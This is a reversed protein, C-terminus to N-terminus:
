DHHQRLMEAYSLLYPAVGKADNAVVPESLYYAASGDRQEKGGLGAVLCIGELQLRGDQESLYRHGIGTYAHVGAQRYSEPLIGLRLAKLICYSLIASGSTELYNGALAPLNVVQYWLGSQTDQYGLLADILGRFHSALRSDRGRCRGPDAVELVDVMAMAFWGLSRLWFSPSLGTQPDAWFMSKSEDYGHYYLGTPPDRMIAVVNDFQDFIDDYGACDMFRTQYEIYFPQAMYLGDLWVQHPYIHKHWFNGRGTRPHTALQTRILDLAKRYKPEGTLDLLPFLVKGGNVNDINYQEPDYGLISGDARVYYDMYRCVFDLYAPKRNVEYLALIAKIMLGDIYNWGPKKGLRINEINWAPAAPTSHALLQDLYDDLLRNNSEMSQGRAARQL